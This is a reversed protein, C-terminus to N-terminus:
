WCRSSPGTQSRVGTHELTLTGCAEDAQAQHLQPVAAVTYSIAGTESLELKYVKDTADSEVEFGDRDIYMPNSSFGLDGLESAYVKNDLFFQEQRDAINLLAGKAQTRVSRTVFNTYSPLAISALILMLAVTVLMEILTFGKQSLKMSADTTGNVDGRGQESIQIKPNM